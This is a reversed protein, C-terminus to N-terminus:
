LTMLAFLHKALGNYFQQYSWIAPSLNRPGRFHVPGASVLYSRIHDLIVAKATGRKPLRNQVRQWLIMHHQDIELHLFSELTLWRTGNRKTRKETDQYIRVNAWCCWSWGCQTASCPGFCTGKKARVGNVTAWCPADHRRWAFITTASRGTDSLKQMAATLFQSFAAGWFIVSNASELKWHDFTWKCSAVTEQLGWIWILMWSPSCSKNHTTRPPDMRFHHDWIGFSELPFGCFQGCIEIHALNKVERRAMPTAAVTMPTPNRAVFNWITFGSSSTPETVILLLVGWSPNFRLSTSRYWPKTQKM